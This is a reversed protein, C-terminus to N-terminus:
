SLGHLYESRVLSRPLNMDGLQLLSGHILLPDMTPLYTAPFRIATVNAIAKHEAPVEETVLIGLADSSIYKREKLYPLSEQLSAIALGRADAVVQSLPM